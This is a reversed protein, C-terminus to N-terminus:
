LQVVRYFRAGGSSPQIFTVSGTSGSNQEAGAVPSWNVLDTSSQLQLDTNVPASATIAIETADGSVTLQVPPAAPPPATTVDLNDIAVLENDVTTALDKSYRWELRIPTAKAPIDFFFTQWPIFGSWSGLVEGDLSFEFKDYNTESNVTFEFSGTGAALNTILVLSATTSDPLRPRVRAVLSGEGTVSNTPVFAVIWHQGADASSSIQWPLKSFDGTQFDDAFQKTTFEASVQTNGTLTFTYMPGSTVVTTIGNQTVLFRSFQMYRDPTATVTVASNAPFTGTGPSVTGGGGSSTALNFVGSQAFTYNLQVNGTAGAYGDVAIYYLRGAEVAVSAESHGDTADPSDDNEAVPILASFSRNLPDNVTYIGLLTDFSSGETSVFLVGSQTPTYSWWLSHGGENGGHLPENFERTANTNSAFDVGSPPTLVRAFGFLDNTGSTTPKYYIVIQQPTSANDAFDVAHIRFVNTPDSLVINATWSTGSITAEVITTPDTQLDEIEISNVGSANPAPDIVTGRFQVAPANTVLGSPPYDVTLLPPKTDPQGNPEVRLRVLGAEGGDAGAVAIRYTTGPQANFNVIAPVGPPPNTAVVQILSDLSNGTYVALVVKPGSGSTDVLIPGATSTSYNWWLSRSNSKGAHLPENAETTAFTNDVQAVNLGFMGTSPVKAANAFNDNPPRAVIHYANSVSSGTEGPATAAFVVPSESANDFQITASYVNDNATIDPAVGDNRFFVDPRGPIHAVVTANNIPIYSDSVTVFFDTPSGIAIDALAPPNVQLDLIGDPPTSRSIMGWWVGWQSVNAKPAAAYEQITWIDLDNNPDVVTASFDGWRNEGTGFDKFYSAEGAKLIAPAQLTGLPDTGARFSYAATAYATTSFITYGVVADHNKNV